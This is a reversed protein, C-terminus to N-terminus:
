SSNLTNANHPMWCKKGQPIAQIDFVLPFITIDRHLESLHSLLTTAETGTDTLNTLKERILTDVIWNVRTKPKAEDQSLSCALKSGVQFVSQSAKQLTRKLPFVLLVDTCFPRVGASQSEMGSFKELLFMLDAGAELCQKRGKPSLLPDGHPSNNLHRQLGLASLNEMLVVETGDLRPTKKREETQDAAVPHMAISKPPANRFSTELFTIQAKNQREDLESLVGYRWDM